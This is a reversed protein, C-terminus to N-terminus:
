RTAPTVRVHDPLDVLAGEANHPNDALRRACYIPRNLAHAVAVELSAGRSFEWGPLVAVGDEAALVHALDLVMWEEWSLAGQDEAGEAGECPIVVEFGAARLKAGMELFAPVNWNEYGTMPGALYLSM